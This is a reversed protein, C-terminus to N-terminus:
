KGGAKLYLLRYKAESRIWQSKDNAIIQKLVKKNTIRRVCALRVYTSNSSLAIQGLLYKNQIMSIAVERPIIGVNEVAIREFIKQNNLKLIADVIIGYYPDKFAAIELLNEANFFSMSNTYEYEKIIKIREREPLKKFDKYLM